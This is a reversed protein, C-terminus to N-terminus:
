NLSLLIREARPASGTTREVELSEVPYLDAPLLSLCALRYLPCSRNQAAAAHAFRDALDPRDARWAVIMCGLPSIREHDVSLVATIERGRLILREARRIERKLESRL